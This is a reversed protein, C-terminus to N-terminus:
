HSPPIDCGRTPLRLARLSLEQLQPLRKLHVLEADSIQSPDDFFNVGVIENRENRRFKAGAEGLEAVPDSCAVMGMVLLCGLQRKM